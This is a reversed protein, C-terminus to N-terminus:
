QYASYFNTTNNGSGGGGSSGRNEGKIRKGKRGGVWKQQYIAAMNYHSTPNNIMNKKDYSINSPNIEDINKIPSALTM